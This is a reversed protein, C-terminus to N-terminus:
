HTHGTNIFGSFFSPGAGFPPQVFSPDPTNSPQGIQDSISEPANGPAKSNVTVVRGQNAGFQAETITNDPLSDLYRRLAHVPHLYNDPAVQKVKPGTIIGVRNVPEALTIESSYDDADALQFFKHNAGGSTRCVEDLANGHGYCSAFVYRKGPDIPQGGITTEVIRGGSSSFPRNKLDIKQTMNALGLYWGGRQMFVNRDFVAGLIKDLSAEISAGSFDAINVAPAIPFWTYLDRLTIEGGPLVANGFRFGNAMSVDVGNEWGPVNRVDAVNNTVNLIADALFNNLTDELVHHRLLLTDTYGVVTDLDDVLQLGQAAPNKFGGPLFSHRKVLGDKGAVFDEEMAAVLEAMAPDEAVSEDVPIAEWDFNAIRGHEIELDLRGVYMDRNTEIVVAAGRSLKHRQKHTLAAGPTTRIVSNKSVLLAGMTVEHTHASYMVDIDKFSQAIKINQPLGLESQVVILEAGLGKVQDIIGPLEEVGQTFRLGINFADAQQPVISATIGIVAIQTGDREFMKFAPLVPKGHLPLPLPAANYLNAAVAPFTAQIVGKGEPTPYPATATIENCTYGSAADTLGAIVPVSDCSIHGTMARLNGPITPKPGYSTFRNRFVAGGYGFDWNGPTYVDIGFANMPVMMADGLTFMAEASGHTLDGASLLLSDPNDVRIGDVLTKLRALGGSSAVARESGDANKLVASHAVLTGHLDGMAILTIDSSNAFTQSSAAGMTIAVSLLTKCFAGCRKSNTKNIFKM